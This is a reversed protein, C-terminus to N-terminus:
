SSIRRAMVREVAREVGPLFSEVPLAVQTSRVLIPTSLLVENWRQLILRGGSDQATRRKPEPLLFNVIWVFLIGSGVLANAADLQNAWATYHQRFFSMSLDLAAYCGTGLAICMPLSRWSLGLRSEFLLFLLLLGCQMLEVIRQLPIMAACIKNIYPGATALATIVSALLLFLAAWAFLMKGLDLLAQYPKLILLFVEYMVGISLLLGLAEITWYYYSYHVESLRPAVVLGVVFTALGFVCLNFFIPAKSYLKRQILVFLLALQLSASLGMLFWQNASLHM